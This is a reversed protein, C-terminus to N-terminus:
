EPAIGPNVAVGRTFSTWPKPGATYRRELQVIEFGRGRCGRRIRTLHCGGALRKQWPELRYQWRAVRGDPAIGHELFHFRGGPPLVRRLEALALRCRPDRM